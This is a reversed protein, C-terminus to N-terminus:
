YLLFIILSEQLLLLYLPQSNICVGCGPGCPSAPATKRVLLIQVLTNQQLLGGPVLFGLTPTVTSGVITLTDGVSSLLISTLYVKTVLLLTVFFNVRKSFQHGRLKEITGKCPLIMLPSSILVTVFQCVQAISIEINRDYPAELINESDLAQSKNVFTAYGFFGTAIYALVGVSLGRMIVRSIRPYNRYRLESYLMPLNQQYICSFTLLPLSSFVGYLSPDFLKVNSLNHMPDPVLGKDTWFIIVLAFVFYMTCFVGLVSAHRLSNMERPLAMPLVVLFALIAGWIIHDDKTDALYWPVSDFFILLIKPITTRM